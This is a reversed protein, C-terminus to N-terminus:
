ELCFLNLSDIEIRIPLRLNVADLGDHSM